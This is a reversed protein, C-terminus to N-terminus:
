IFFINENKIKYFINYIFINTNKIELFKFVKSIKIFYRFKEQYKIDLDILNIIKIDIDFFM